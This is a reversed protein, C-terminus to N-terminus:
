KARKFYGEFHAPKGPDTPGNREWRAKFTDNDKKTFMITYNQKKYTAKNDSELTIIGSSSGPLIPNKMAQFHDWSYTCHYKGEKEEVILFNARHRGRPLEWEGEWKGIYYQAHHPVVSETGTSKPNNPLEESLLVTSLAIILAVTILVVRFRM